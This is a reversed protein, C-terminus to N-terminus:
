LKMQKKLQKSLPKPANKDLWSRVGFICGLSSLGVIVWGWVSGSKKGKQKLAGDATTIASAALRQQDNQVLATQGRVDGKEVGIRESAVPGTTGKIEPMLAMQKQANQLSEESAEPVFKAGPPKQEWAAFSASTLALGILVITKKM